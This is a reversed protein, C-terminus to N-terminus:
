PDDTPVLDSPMRERLWQMAQEQGFHAAVDLATRGGRDRRRLSAGVSVLAELSAVQGRAAAYMLPTVAESGMTRDPAVGGRVLVYIVEVHGLEAAKCLTAADAFAGARLLRRVIDADGTAAAITLTGFVPEEGAELASEVAALDRACIADRLASM